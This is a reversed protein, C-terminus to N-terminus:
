KEEVPYGASKWEHIGGKYINVGNFGLKALDYALDISVECKEGKCYVVIIGDKNFKKMISMQEQRPKAHFEEYPINIAGTVHLVDFDEKKRADIFLAKIDYMQKALEKSIKQEPEVFGQKNKEKVQWNHGQKYSSTDYPDNVFGEPINSKQKNSDAIDVKYINKDLILPVGGPNVANVLLGLGAGVAIIILLQKVTNNKM